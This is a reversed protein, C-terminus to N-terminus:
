FGHGEVFDAFSNLLTGESWERKMQIIPVRGHNIMGFEDDQRRICFVSDDDIFYRASHSNDVHVGNRFDAHTDHTPVAFRLRFAFPASRITANLAGGRLPPRM